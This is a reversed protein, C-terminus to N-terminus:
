QAPKLAVGYYDQDFEHWVGTVVYDVGEYTLDEGIRPLATTQLPDAYLESWNEDYLFIYLM